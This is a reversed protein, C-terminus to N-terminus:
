KGKKLREAIEGQLYGLCIEAVPSAAEKALQVLVEATMEDDEIVGKKKAFGGMVEAACFCYDKSVEISYGKVALGKLCGDYVGGKFADLPGSDGTTGAEAPLSLGFVFLGALVSAALIGAKEWGSLKQRRCYFFSGRVASLFYCLIGFAVMFGIPNHHSKWFSPESYQNVKGALFLLLLAVSAVRSCRYAGLGLVAFAVADVLAWGDTGFWGFWSALGTIVACLAAACAGAKCAGDAEERTTIPPWLLTRLSNM